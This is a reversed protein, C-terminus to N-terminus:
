AAEEEEFLGPGISRPAHHRRLDLPGLTDPDLDFRLLAILQDETIQQRDWTMWESDDPGLHSFTLVHMGYARMQVVRRLMASYVELPAEGAQYRLDKTPTQMRNRMLQNAMHLTDTQADSLETGFTKIEVLMLLQFERTGISDTNTKYRHIWYDQDSVSYGLRSDLSKCNRIWRGFLTEATHMTKCNPCHFQQTYPRTM